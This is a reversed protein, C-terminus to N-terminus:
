RGMLLWSPNLAGIGHLRVGAANQPLQTVEKLLDEICSQMAGRFLQAGDVAFDSVSHDNM